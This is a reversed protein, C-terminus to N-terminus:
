QFTGQLKCDFSIVGVDQGVDNKITASVPGLARQNFGPINGIISTYNWGDIPHFPDPYEMCSVEGDMCATIEGPPTGNSSSKPCYGGALGMCSFQRADIIRGASDVKTAHKYYFNVNASFLAKPTNLELRTKASSTTMRVNSNPDYMPIRAIFFDQTQEAYVPVPSTIDSIKLTCTFRDAVLAHSASSVFILALVPLLTKM